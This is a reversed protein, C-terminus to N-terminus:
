ATKKAAAPKKPATIRTVEEISTVGEVAKRLASQQISPLGSKRLASRLGQLNGEAILAREEDGIEYVAFVGTQGLYGLGNCLTCQEPKNRVLVQGGKKFLEGVKDAPLGLKRLMDGSPQYPVKCNECLKRVLKHAVVGRLGQAALKPDGVAKIYTQIATLADDAKLSLYVRTRELDANAVNKATEVDQLECIGVIDPDRRLSSRVTTAFDPGEASADWIIQKVGEIADEMEFEITQINSTYADHLKLLSYLTTTRGGDPQGAVLVVGGAKPGLQAWEKLLKLQPDLLGLEKPKRRVAQSPNFIMTMRMGGKTGSTSIKVDTSTTGEGWSVSVKGTLKRRRDEVDLKACKKWFDIIKIADGAAIADGKQRVGDILMSAAYASESAPLIDVQSARLEIAKIVIQEAAIRVALDPSEKSPPMVKMKDAGVILLESSGLQKAQKKAERKEAVDSMDLSLRGTEPVREDKNAISVYILIDVGLIIISGVFAGAFGAIGGLPIFLVLALAAAGMIIHIANWKEAGLFFRQAHKDLHTAIVWAWAIFPAFLLIPKWVSVLMFAQSALTPASLATSEILM